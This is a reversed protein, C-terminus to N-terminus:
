RASRSPFTTRAHFRAALGIAAIALSAIFGWWIGAPGVDTWFALGAALPMGIVWYAFLTLTMPIRTDKLGRLAGNSTAQVCDFIQFVAAFALFRAAPGALHEADTYVHVIVGPALAMLSASMGAFVIGLLIGARGRLAVSARDGAGAAHGVRVATAMGIATPVMFCLSAFNIAIQHAAVADAGFRAMLLAGICFLWAEAAMIAAVPVGVKLVELTERDIRPWGPRFLQLARLMRSRLYFGVYVALMAWSGIVTAWGCGEPGMPPFIWHGYMLLWAFLANACLGVLGAALPVRTMGHAEAGNRLFFCLSLPPASWAMAFVYERAFGATRADLDLLTLVPGAAFLMLALWVLGLLASLVMASRLFRGILAPSQGAGLRQSVIPSVAMGVGMFMVCTLFWINSGVAVAALESVGLQGAFIADVTGMSVFTLQAAILPLALRLNARVETRLSALFM